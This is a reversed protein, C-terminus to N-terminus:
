GEPKPGSFGKRTAWCRARPGGLNSQPRASPQAGLAGRKTSCSGPHEGPMCSVRCLPSTAAGRDERGAGAGVPFDTVPLKPLVGRKGTKEPRPGQAWPFRL